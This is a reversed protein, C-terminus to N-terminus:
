IGIEFITIKINISEDHVYSNLQYPKPLSHHQFFNIKIQNKTKLSITGHKSTKFKGIFIRVM